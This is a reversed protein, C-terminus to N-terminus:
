KAKKAAREATESAEAAKLVAEQEAIKEPTLENPKIEATASGDCGLMPVTLMLAVFLLKVQQM